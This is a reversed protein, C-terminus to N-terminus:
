SPGDTEDADDQENDAPGIFKSAFARRRSWSTDIWGGHESSDTSRAEIGTLKTFLHGSFSASSPMADEDGGVIYAFGVLRGAIDDVTFEGAQLGEQVAAQLDPLAGAEEALGYLFVRAGRQDADDRLRLDAVLEPLYRDVERRLTDRLAQQTQENVRSLDPKAALSIVHARRETQTCAALSPDVDATPDANLIAGLLDSMWYVCQALSSTWSIRSDDLVDVLRMGAALLELTAPGEPANGRAWPEDIDPYRARIKSFALAVLDTDETLLLDRLETDNGDAAQTLVRAIVADAVDGEPISQALYRNFYEPHAFRGSPARFARKEAFAPFLKILIARADERDHEDEVVALLEEWKPGKEDDRGMTLVGGSSGRTLDSKWNQLEAFLDPFQVRLFTALILDVDNIEDAEHMRFQERVQALFRDIARPTTLQSPMTAQIVRSFRATEFRADVRAPTLIEILGAELLKVVKNYLLPPMSLPYQVIKEMFSRARTTSVRGRTPDQLTEVITQEDYALLFDVGPFRGLLRVVKLLDLLEGPQLRDMDDVVVLIPTNLARLEDSVKKFEVSWPKRMREEATRSAEALGTGVVPIAAAIPRAIDAYSTIRDRLKKNAETEPAVSSLVAFFEAFLSETSSTAWPTFPVVKWQSDEPDTLFETILAVVSSKGSGWPGELGYVVSSDATHNEVILRAAHKAFPARRLQDEKINAIPDDHWGHRRREAVTTDIPQPQHHDSVLQLRSSLASM